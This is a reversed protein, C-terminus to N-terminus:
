GRGQPGSKKRKARSDGRKPQQRQGGNAKPEEEVSETEVANESEGRKARKRAEKAAKRELFKKEAESGAAPSRRIVFFQQGMTWLNTTSWYVLVGIPFNVGSVAFIIPFAYLMMKQARFMPNDKASEPMNKMTLQRQTTFTTASMLAILVITVIRVTLASAGGTASEAGMFSASLPAGFLTSQEASSALERGIPGVAPNEGSAIKPLQNLVRFLAFFFPSQLLIPLCSSFPNTGHKRYLDQMEQAQRQRSIPDTKGKYKKQIKQLEPQMLQMGRSSKIQKAFLPLLLVRMVIVLAVISMVWVFGSDPDFFLSFFWHTGGMINAVIWKIPQLISDYWYSGSVGCVGEIEGAFAV